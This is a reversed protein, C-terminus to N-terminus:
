IPWIIGNTVVVTVATLNKIDIEEIKAPTSMSFKSHITLHFTIRYVSASMKTLRLIDEVEGEAIGCNMLLLSQTCM